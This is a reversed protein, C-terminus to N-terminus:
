RLDDTQTCPEGEPLFRLELYRAIYDVISDVMHIKPDRTVGCPEFHLSRLKSTVASLPIGYQLAMSIMLALAHLLGREMTGGKHITLFVEGPKGDPYFGVTIYGELDGLNLKKTVSNRETPMKTQILEPM